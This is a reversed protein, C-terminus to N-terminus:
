NKPTSTSKLRVMKDRRIALVGGLYALPLYGITNVIDFWLPHVFHVVDIIGLIFCIAGVFMSIKLKAGKALLGALYAGVFVGIFHGALVFELFIPHSTYFREVAGIDNLSLMESPPDVVKGLKYISIALLMATVFGAGVAGINPIINKSNSAM